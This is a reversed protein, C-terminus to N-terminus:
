PTTFRIQPIIVTVCTGKGLASNIEIKGKHAEAIALCFPLGLGSGGKARDRSKDVMYFPEVIRKLEDQEMGIGFDKIMIILSDNSNKLTLYISEGDDSANLANKCLNIILSILLAEDAYIIESKNEVIINQNRKKAFIELRFLVQEIIRQPRLPKIDIKSENNLSSWKLIKDSLSSLRQGEKKIYKLEDHLEEASLEKQVAYDSYAVISTIPTKIEHALNSAFLEKLHAMESLSRIHEEISESMNNFSSALQGVEDNHIIKLRKHYDGNAISIAQKRLDNLPKLTRPIIINLLLFLLLGAIFITTANRESLSDIATKVRSSDQIYDLRFLTQYIKIYSTVVILTKDDAVATFYSITGDKEPLIKLSLVDEDTINSYITGMEDNTIRYSANTTYYNSYDDASNRVTGLLYLNQDEQSYNRSEAMKKIAYGIRFQENIATDYAYEMIKVHATQISQAVCFLTTLFALTYGVVILRSQLSFSRKNLAKDSM